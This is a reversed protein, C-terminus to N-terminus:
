DKKAPQIGLRLGITFQAMLGNRQQTEDYIREKGFGYDPGMHTTDTLHDYELHAVDFHRYRMGVGAYLDTVLGRESIKQVGFIFNMGYVQKKVAYVDYRESVDGPRTYMVGSHHKDQNYFFNFGAYLGYPATYDRLNRRFETKLKFGGTGTFLTDHNEIGSRRYKIGAENYWSWKHGLPTEVGASIVPFSLDDILSFPNTKLVPGSHQAAATSAFLFCIIVPTLKM